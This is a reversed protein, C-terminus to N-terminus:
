AMQTMGRKRQRLGFGVAGFGLLMMAWTSPEPVGGEVAAAGIASTTIGSTSSTTVGRDLLRGGHRGGLLLNSTTDGARLRLGRLGRTRVRTTDAVGFQQSVAGSKSGHVIVSASAPASIVASAALLSLIVLRM